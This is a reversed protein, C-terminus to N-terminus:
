GPVNLDNSIEEITATEAVKPLKLRSFNDDDVYDMVMKALNDPMMEEVYSQVVQMEVKQNTENFNTQLADFNLLSQKLSEYGFVGIPIMGVMMISGLEMNRILNEEEVGKQDITLQFISATALNLLISSLYAIKTLPFQPDAIYNLTICTDGKLIAPISLLAATAVRSVTGFKGTNGLVMNKATKTYYLANASFRNYGNNIVSSM